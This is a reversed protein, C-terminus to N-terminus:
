KTKGERLLRLAEVESLGVQDVFLKKVRTSGVEDGEHGSFMLQPYGSGSRMVRHSGGQRVIEYNLPRRKLVRLVEAVKM